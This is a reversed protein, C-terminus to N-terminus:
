KCEKRQKYLFEAALFDLEEDIDWAEFRDVEFMLPKEGIRNRRSELSKRSFIYINSNENYVPPLDQTRLLVDPDHKIPRGREDWFRSQVLTVSFLSDYEPLKNLFTEIADTVTETRLLPNTSHTQLYFDAEIQTVDYLLVENMPTDGSTLHDPRRVLRVTPFNKEADELILPSDTDISIESILPCELLTGIIYHYLPRGNFSRFNKGAVRESEHRMPVLAAIRNKM